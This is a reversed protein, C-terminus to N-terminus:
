RVAGAMALLMKAARRMAALMAPAFPDHGVGDIMIVRAAPLRAVLRRANGPRCVLDARGHLIFVPKDSLSGAAELIAQEGLFCANLLYHAQVRYKDWLM